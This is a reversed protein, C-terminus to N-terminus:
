PLMELGNLAETQASDAMAIAVNENRKMTDWLSYLLEFCKRGNWKTFFSLAGRFKTMKEKAFIVSGSGRGHNLFHDAPFSSTRSHDVNERM